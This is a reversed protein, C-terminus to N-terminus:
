RGNNQIGAAAGRARAAPRREIESHECVFSPHRTIRSASMLNQARRDLLDLISVEYCIEYCGPAFGYKDEPMADAAPVLQQETKTVWVDLEKGIARTEEKKTSQAIAASSALVILCTGILRPLNTTM